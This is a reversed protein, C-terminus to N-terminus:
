DERGEYMNLLVERADHIGGAYETCANIKNELYSLRNNIQNRRAVTINDWDHGAAIRLEDQLEMVEYRLAILKDTEARYLASLKDIVEDLSVRM